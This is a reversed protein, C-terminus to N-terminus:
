AMEYELSLPGYLYRVATITGIPQIHVLIVGDSPVTFDGLDWMVALWNTDTFSVGDASYLVTQSTEGNSDWNGSDLNGTQYIVRVNYGTVETSSSRLMGKIRKVRAGALVFPGFNAWSVTPEAGVGGTQNYNDTQSGFSTSFGVWRNDTNCYWRGGIPYSQLKSLVAEWNGADNLMYVGRPGDADDNMKFVINDQPTGPDAPVAALSGVVTIDTKTYEDPNLPM